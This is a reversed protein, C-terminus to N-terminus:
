DPISMQTFINAVSQTMRESLSSMEQLHKLLAFAPRFKLSAPSFDRPSLTRAEANSLDPHLDQNRSRKAQHM